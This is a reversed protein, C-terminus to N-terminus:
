HRSAESTTRWLLAWAVMAMMQHTVKGEWFNVQTLGNLHFVIWACFLGRSFDVGGLQSERRALPWLMWFIAGSWALWALTGFAGTGAMMDLLNNHAHGSFVDQGPRLFTLYLGVLEHNHRWGVGFLPHERFFLLNAKWLDQRTLLGYSDRFRDQVWAQQSLVLLGLLILAGLFLSWRRPLSWFVWILIGIPLALWLTRSYTMFLMLAGLAVIGWLRWSRHKPSRLLDLAAFFPFILISAVSLHHGLFLTAHFRATGPISQPRPWGTFFQVVGIVSLLAFGAIWAKVVKKRVDESVGQLGVLVFLPWVLYWLKASDKLLHIQINKGGYGSPEFWAVLLSAACALALGLALWFYINIWLNKGNGRIREWFGRAGREGGFVLVSALLLTGISMTAMSGLTSLFYVILAAATRGQPTKWSALEENLATIARM